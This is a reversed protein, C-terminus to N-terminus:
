NPLIKWKKIQSKGKVLQFIKYKKLQFTKRESYLQFIESKEEQFVKRKRIKLLHLFKNKAM